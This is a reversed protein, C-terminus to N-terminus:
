GLAHMLVTWLRRDKLYVLKGIMDVRKRIVFAGFHQRVKLLPSLHLKCTRM